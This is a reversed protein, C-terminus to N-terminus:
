VVYRRCHCLSTAGRFTLQSKRRIKGDFWHSRVVYKAWDRYPSCRLQWIPRVLTNLTNSPRSDTFSVAHTMIESSRRHSLQVDM